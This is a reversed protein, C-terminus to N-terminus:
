GLLAGVFALNIANALIESFCETVTDSDKPSVFFSQGSELVKKLSDSFDNIGAETLADYVLTASDVVTPVGIAIVPVGLTKSTIGVRRNGVGSGPHIGADTIQVTAALRECSRAALADIVVVLNPRVHEVAGRLLELTEIGTQGLVGPSLASLSSCGIERYLAHEHERLHRTATLMGVTRPGIADVTLEANGLGAVFIDLESDPLRGTLQKTMRRLEAALLESLLRTERTGSSLIGKCEVTIYNGIPRGLLEADTSDEIHLDCFRFNKIQRERYKAEPLTRGAEAMSECALDTKAHFEM